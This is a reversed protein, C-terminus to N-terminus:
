VNNHEKSANVLEQLESPPLASVLVYTLGLKEWVAVTYGKESFSSAPSDGHHASLRLGEEARLTGAEAAFLSIRRGHLEYFALSVPVEAIHCRRGGELQAPLDPIGPAFPLRGSFWVELQKADATAIELDKGLTSHELHCLVFMSLPIQGDTERKVVMLGFVGVAICAALAQVVRNRLLGRVVTRKSETNAIEEIRRRLYLPAELVPLNKRISESLATLREFELRYETDSALYERIERERDDGIEGDVLPELLEFAEHRDM